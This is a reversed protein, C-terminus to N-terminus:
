DIRSRGRQGERGAGADNRRGVPGASRIERQPERRRLQHDAFRRRAPEISIAAAAAPRGGEGLRGGESFGRRVATAKASAPRRGLGSGRRRRRGLSKRPAGYWAGASGGRGDEVYDKFRGYEADWRDHVIPDYREVPFSREIIARADALSGVAGTALMQVAINGLATAEV